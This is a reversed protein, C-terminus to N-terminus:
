EWICANKKWVAGTWIQRGQLHIESLQYIRGLDDRFHLQNQKGSCM